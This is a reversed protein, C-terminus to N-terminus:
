RGILDAAREDSMSVTMRGKAQRHGGRDPADNLLIASNVLHNTKSFGLCSRM